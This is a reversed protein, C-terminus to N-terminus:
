DLFTFGTMLVKFTINPLTSIRVTYTPALCTFALCKKPSITMGSIKPWPLLLIETSCHVPLFVTFFNDFNNLLVMIILGTDVKRNRRQDERGPKFYPTYIIITVHGVENFSLLQHSTAFCLQLFSSVRRFWTDKSAEQELKTWIRPETGNNQSCGPIFTPEWLILIALYKNKENEGSRGQGKTSVSKLTCIFSAERM